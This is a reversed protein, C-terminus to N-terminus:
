GAENLLKVDMHHQTSFLKLFTLILDVLIKSIVLIQLVYGSNEEQKTLIYM